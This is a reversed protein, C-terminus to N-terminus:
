VFDFNLESFDAADFTTGDATTTDAAIIFTDGSGAGDASIIVDIGDGILAAGLGANGGDAIWDAVSQIDIDSIDSFGLPTFNFVTVNDATSLNLADKDSDPDDAIVGRVTYIAAPTGPATPATPVDSITIVTNFDVSSGGAPGGLILFDTLTLDFNEQGNIAVQVDDNASVVTDVAVGPVVANSLAGTFTGDYGSFDISDISAPLAASGMGAATQVTLSDITSTTSAGTFTIATLINDVQLADTGGGADTAFNEAANGVVPVASPGDLDVGFSDDLLLELIVDPDAALFAVDLDITQFDSIDLAPGGSLLTSGAGVGTTIDVDISGSGNGVLNITDDFTGTPAAVEGITVSSGGALDVIAFTAATAGILVSQNLTGAGAMSFVGSVASLQQGVAAGYASGAISGFQISEFDTITPGAGLTETSAPPAGVTGGFAGGFGILDTLADTGTFTDNAGGDLIASTAVVPTGNNNGDVGLVVPAELDEATVSVNNGTSPNLQSMSNIELSLAQTGQLVLSNVSAGIFSTVQNVTNLAGNSNVTVQRVATITEGADSGNVTLNTVGLQGTAAATNNLAIELETELSDTITINDFQQNADSTAPTGITQNIGWVTIGTGVEPNIITTDTTAGTTAVFIESLGLMNGNTIDMTILDTAADDGPTDGNGAIILNDVDEFAEFANQAVTLAPLGNAAGIAVGTSTNLELTNEVTDAEADNVDLDISISDKQFPLAGLLPGSSTLNVRDAGTGSTIDLDFVPSYSVLNPAFLGGAATHNFNLSLNNGPTDGSGDGMAYIFEVNDEDTNLPAFEAIGDTDLYKELSASTIQAGVKVNDDFSTSDFIRVDSIGVTGVRNDDTTPLDFISEIGGSSSSTNPGIILDGAVGTGGFSGPLDDVYVEQLVNNTSSLIQIDSRDEVFLNFVEIGDTQGMSGVIFAGGEAGRGVGDAVLNGIIPGEPAANPEQDFVLNGAAPAQGDLFLTAGPALDTSESDVILFQTDNVAVAELGTLGQAAIEANLAAVFEPITNNIPDTDFDGGEAVRAIELTVTEGGRSFAVGTVPFESLDPQNLDDLTVLLSSEGLNSQLAAPDFFVAYSVFPDSDRFGIFTSDTRSRVDEIVLDGRSNDSWWQEVGNNNQADVRAFLSGAGLINNANVANPGIVAGPTTLVVGAVAGLVTNSALDANLTQNRIFMNEVSSSNTSIAPGSPFLGSTTVTLDIQASDNGGGGIFTDGSEFTNTVNGFGASAQALPAVFTDDLGTGELNDVGDTFTLSNGQGVPNTVEDDLQGEFDQTGEAGNVLFSTINDGSLGQYEDSRIFSFGLDAIADNRAEDEIINGDEDFSTAANLVGLWFEFGGPDSPRDLFELFFTEVITENTLQSFNESFENSNAFREAVDRGETPTSLSATAKPVWFEFGGEDPVRGGLFVDYLAVTLRAGAAADSEAAAELAERENAFTDEDTFTAIEADTPTRQFIFALGDIILTDDLM